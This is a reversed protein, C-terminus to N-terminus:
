GLDPGDLAPGLAAEFPDAVDLWSRTRREIETLLCSDLLDGLWDVCVGIGTLVLSSGAVTPEDPEAAALSLTTGASEWLVTDGPRNALEVQGTSRVVAPLVLDFAEHLRLPHLPRAAHWVLTQVDGAPEVFDHALAALRARTRPDGCSSRGTSVLQEVGSGDPGIGVQVSLPALHTVLGQVTRAAQAGMRNLHVVAVVDAQELQACLVQAVSRPDSRAARLGRSSLLDRGTLHEQLLVADVLVSVGDFRVAQQPAARDLIAHRIVRSVSLPLVPAPLCILVESWRGDAVVELLAPVDECVTCSVCRDVLEIDRRDVVGSATFVSRSLVDRDPPRMDYVVAVVGARVPLLQDLCHDRVTSSLSCLLTLPTPM